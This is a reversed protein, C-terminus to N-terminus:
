RGHKEPTLRAKLVEVLTENVVPKRILYHKRSNAVTEQLESSPNFGTCFVVAPIEWNQEACLEQIRHFATEGDMIPMKLDMLIVSHHVTRFSDVAEAGNVALDIRCDPLGYSVIQQFVRRIAHEDDVILLRNHECPIKGQEAM